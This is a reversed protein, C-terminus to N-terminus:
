TVERGRGGEGEGEDGEAPSLLVDCVDLDLARSVEIVQISSLLKGSQSLQDHVVSLIRPCQLLPISLDNFEFDREIRLLDSIFPICEEVLM